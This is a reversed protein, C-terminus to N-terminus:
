GLPRAEPRSPARRARNPSARWPFRRGRRRALAWLGIGLAALSVATPEPVTQIVLAWNVLTGEGGGAMDSVFLTWTGDAPRSDFVALTALRPDTDLVLQPNVDRGDPQWSGLLPSGGNGGYTHVDAAALDTLHLTMGIDEYGLSQSSTRGVRNLLVSFGGNDATLYAYFDGTYGDSVSLSISVNTISGSTGSVDIESSLGNPNGDPIVRNVQNTFAYEAAPMSLCAVLAVSSFCRAFRM